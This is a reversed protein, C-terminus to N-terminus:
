HSLARLWAIGAVGAGILVTVIVLKVHSARSTRGHPEECPLEDDDPSPEAPACASHTTGAVGDCSVSM